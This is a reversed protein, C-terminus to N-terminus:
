ITTMKKTPLLNRVNKPQVRNRWLSSLLQLRVLVKRRPKVPPHEPHSRSPAHPSPDDQHHGPVNPRLSPPLGSQPHSPGERKPAPADHRARVNLDLSAPADLHYMRAPVNLRVLRDLRAFRGLRALRDLRALRGPAERPLDPHVM